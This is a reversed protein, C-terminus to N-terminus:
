VSVTSAHRTRILVLALLGPGLLPFASPEPAAVTGSVAFIAIENPGTYNFNISTLNATSTIPATFDYLHILFNKNEGDPLQGALEYAASSNSTAGGGVWDPVNFSGTQTGGGAFHLTYDVTGGGDGGTALFGISSYVQPTNLVLAPAPSFGHDVRVGSDASLPGLQYSNGDATGVVLNAPISNAFGSNAAAPAYNGDVGVVPASSNSTGQNTGAGFDYVLNANGGTFSIPTVIQAHSTLAPFLALSALLSLSQALSKYSTTKMPFNTQAILNTIKIKSL